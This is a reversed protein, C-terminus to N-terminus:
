TLCSSLFLTSAYVGLHVRGFSGTGLTRHIIFDSLRYSGTPRRVQLPVAPESPTDVDMHVSQNRQANKVSGRKWDSVSTHETSVSPRHGASSFATSQTSSLSASPSHMPDQHQQHTVGQVSPPQPGLPSSPTPTGVPSAPKPSTIHGLKDAMKRMM